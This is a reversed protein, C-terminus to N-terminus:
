AQERGFSVGLGFKTVNRLCKWELSLMSRKRVLGLWEGHKALYHVLSQFSSLLTLFTKCVQWEITGCKTPSTLLSLNWLKLGFYTLSTLTGMKYWLNQWSTWVSAVETAFQCLHSIAAMSSKLLTSNHKRKKFNSSSMFAKTLLVPRLHLWPKTM